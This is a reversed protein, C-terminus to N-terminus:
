EVVGFLPDPNRPIGSASLPVKGYVKLDSRYKEAADAADRVAKATVKLTPEGVPSAVSIAFQSREYWWGGLAMGLLAVIVLLPGLQKM